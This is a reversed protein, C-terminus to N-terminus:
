FERKEDRLGGGIKQTGRGDLQQDHKCCLVKEAKKELTNPTTDKTKRRDAKIKEAYSTGRYAEPKKRQM